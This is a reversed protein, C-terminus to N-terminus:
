WSIFQYYVAEWLNQIKVQYILNHSLSAVLMPNFVHCRQVGAEERSPLMVAAHKTSGSQLLTIVKLAVSLKQIHNAEYLKAEYKM